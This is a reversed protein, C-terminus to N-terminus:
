FLTLNKQLRSRLDFTPLTIFSIAVMEFYVNVLKNVFTDDGDKNPKNTLILIWGDIM